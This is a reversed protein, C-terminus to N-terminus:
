HLKSLPPQLSHNTKACWGMPHLDSCDDDVWYDYEESWGDFHIQLSYSSVDVITAVRILIPNRRDVAELKMGPEFGHAPHQFCSM